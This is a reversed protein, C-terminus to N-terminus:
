FATQNQEHVGNGLKGGLAEGTVTKVAQTALVVDRVPLNGEWFQEPM